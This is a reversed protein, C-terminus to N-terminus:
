LRDSANPYGKYVSVIEAGGDRVMTPNATTYSYRTTATGTQVALIARARVMDGSMLYSSRVVVMLSDRGDASADVTDVRVMYTFNGGGRTGTGPLRGVQDPRLYPNGTAPNVNDLLRAQRMAQYSADIIQRM